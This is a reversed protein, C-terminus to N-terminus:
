FCNELTLRLNVNNNTLLPVYDMLRKLALYIKKSTEDTSDGRLSNLLATRFSAIIGELIDSTTDNVLIQEVLLLPFSSNKSIYHEEILKTFIPTDSDIRNDTLNIVICRSVVTPLLFDANKSIIFLDVNQPLEEISKLLANQADITIDNNVIILKRESETHKISLVRKIERAHAILIKEEFRIVNYSTIHNQESYKNIHKESLDKDGIILFSKM